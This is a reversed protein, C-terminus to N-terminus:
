STIHKNKIMELMNAQMDKMYNFEFILFVILIICIIIVRKKFGKDDIIQEKYKNLISAIYPIIILGNVGAFIFVMTRNFIIAVEGLSKDIPNGGLNYLIKTLIYIFIFAGVIYICKTKTELKYMNKYTWILLLLYLIINFIVIFVM